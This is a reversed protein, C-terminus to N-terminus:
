QIKGRLVTVSAAPLAYVSSADGAQRTRVIPGDPEARGNPGDAHWGYQGAGFTAAEVDGGFAAETRQADSFTVRVKKAANADKNVLLVAWAGDPRHVAYATVVVRGQADMVESSTAFLENPADGPQAWEQTLLQAAFFQSVPQKVQLDRGVNFMTFGGWTADCDSWLPGPFYHFYYTEKGGASLFAGTYDALWLAGFTDVFPENAESSINVETALMPVGAPLGDDRWVQMIHSILRPEDYLDDWRVKCPDFPYHEFSMFALDSM